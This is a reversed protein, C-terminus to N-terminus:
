LDVRVQKLRTVDTVTGLLRGGRAGPAATPYFQASGWLWHLSGDPWIVRFDTSHQTQTRLARRIVDRITARDGPYIRKLLTRYGLLAEGPAFGFILEVQNSYSLQGQPSRWEWIGLEATALALRRQEESQTLQRRLNAKEVAQEISHQLSAPTIEGKILYDEAGAKLARAAIAESGKGTVIILAPMDQIQPKLAQLFELGNFDPLRYDLLVVDPQAQICLALGAEGSDAEFVACNLNPNRQLYRRYSIRDAGSDDVILVTFCQHAM